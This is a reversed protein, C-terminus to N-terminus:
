QCIGGKCSKPVVCANNCAGCHFNNTMVDVCTPVVLGCKQQGSPCEKVPTCKANVCSEGSKCANNCSGCHANDTNLNACTALGCKTEGSNCQTLPVCKGGTCKQGVNCSKGCQGCNLYSTQLDVCVGNCLTDNCQTLTKCTGKNCTESLKCANGCSGCHDRDTQFDVCQGNCVNKGQICTCSGNNCTQGTTCSTGCAGCHNLDTTPDICLGACKLQTSSCPADTCVGKQCTQGSKCTTKCAGCHQPNTQLDACIPTILNGCNTEGIDCRDKPKCAGELCKELRSCNKGCGGCHQNEINTNICKGGCLTLEPDCTIPKCTGASCTENPECRKECDGCNDVDQQTDVCKDACQIKPFTCQLKGRCKSLLCISGSDCTKGCEGCHDTNFALNVCTDGCCTKNHGCDEDTTCPCDEDIRGDCDNDKKDGCQEEAPAVEGTCASWKGDSLCTQTGAKCEGIGIRTIPSTHCRRTEGEQCKCKLDEDIQGDCNNDLGDCVESTATVEGFCPGWLNDQECYQKGTQCLGKPSGDATLTGTFCERALGPSSCSCDVKQGAEDSVDDVIGNCDNDARDCIEKKPLVQGICITWSGDEKCVKTGARCIGINILSGDKGEFCVVEEGPTCPTSKCVGRLCYVNPPSAVCDSDSQCVRGAAGGCSQLIVVTVFLFVVRVYGSMRKRGETTHVVQNM